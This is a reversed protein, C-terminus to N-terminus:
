NGNYAVSAIAKYDSERACRAEKNFMKAIHLAIQNLDKDKWIGDVESYTWLKGYEGVLGAKKHTKSWEHAMEL